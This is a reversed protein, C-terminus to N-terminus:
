NKDGIDFIKSFLDTLSNEEKYKVAWEEPTLQSTIYDQDYKTIIGRTRLVVCLRGIVEAITDALEKVEKEEM